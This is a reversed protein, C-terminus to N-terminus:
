RKQAEVYLSEWEYTPDDLSLDPCARTQGFSVRSVGQFGARSLMAEMTPWDYLFQHEYRQRFYLNVIEMPTDGGNGRRAVLETPAEFYRRMLLEADPVVVRLCGGRRLIRLVERAVALGTEESFHELLHECFVGDFSEDEFPLPRCIDCEFHIDPHRARPLRRCQGLQSKRYWPTGGRPEPLHAEASDGHVPLDEAAAVHAHESRPTALLSAGM